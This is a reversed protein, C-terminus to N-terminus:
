RIAAVFSPATSNQDEPKRAYCEMVNKWFAFKTRVGLCRLAFRAIDRVPSAYPTEKYPFHMKIVNMGLNRLIQSLIRDSVLLYNRPPDLMPLEQFLRYCISGTNPTALFVM